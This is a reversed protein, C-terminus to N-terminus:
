DFSRPRFPPRKLDGVVFRLNEIQEGRAIIAGQEGREPSFDLAMVRGRRGVMQAMVRAVAGTGAGADLARMGPALGVLELRKRVREPDTKAELREGEGSSEMLYAAAAQASSKLQAVGSAPAASKAARRRM